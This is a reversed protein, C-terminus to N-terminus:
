VVSKRDWQFIFAKWLIATTLLVSSEGLHIKTKHHPLKKHNTLDLFPVLQKVIPIRSFSISRWLITRRNQNVPAAGPAWLFDRYLFPSTSRKQCLSQFRFESKNEGSRRFFTTRQQSVNQHSSYLKWFEPWLRQQMREPPRRLYPLHQCRKSLCPWRMTWLLQRVIKEWVQREYWNGECKLLISYYCGHMLRLATVCFFRFASQHWTRM